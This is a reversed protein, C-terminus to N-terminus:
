VVCVDADMQTIQRRSDVAEGGTAPLLGAFDEATGPLSGGLTSHSQSVSQLAGNVAGKQLPLCPLKTKHRDFFGNGKGDLPAAGVVPSGSPGRGGPNRVFLKGVGFKNGQKEEVLLAVRGSGDTTGRLKGPGRVKGRLSEGQDRSFFPDFPLKGVNGLGAHLM